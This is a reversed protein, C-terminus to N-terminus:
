QNHFEQTIKQGNIDMEYYGDTGAENFWYDMKINGDPGEATYIVHCMGAYKGSTELNVVVMKANANGEMGSSQMNWNSGPSCWSDGKTNTEITTTGTETEITTKSNEPTTTTTTVTKGDETKTVTQTCASLVLLAFLIFIIKKM